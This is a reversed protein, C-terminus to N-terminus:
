RWDPRFILIAAMWLLYPLAVMAPIGAVVLAATPSGHNKLYLSGYLIALLLALLGTWMLIYTPSPTANRGFIGLLLERHGLLAALVDLLWLLWFFLLTNKTM